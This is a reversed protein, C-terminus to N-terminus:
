PAPSTSRAAPRCPGGHSCPAPTTSRSSGHPPTPRARTSRSPLATRADGAAIGTRSMARFTTRTDGPLPQLQTLTGDPAWRAPHSGSWGAATGDDSVAEVYGMPDGPLLPLTTPSLEPNWRTPLRQNNPGNTYGVIVGNDNIAAPYSSTAGPPLPLDAVTSTM